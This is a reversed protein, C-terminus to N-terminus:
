HYDTIEINVAEQREDSWTFCVRWQSNIRISYQGERDGRLAEFRNGPPTRLDYLKAAADLRDLAIYARQRPVGQLKRVHEGNAFRETDRDRYTPPM